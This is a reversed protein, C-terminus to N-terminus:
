LAGFVPGGNAAGGGGGARSSSVGVGADADLAPAVSASSSSSPGPLNSSSSSAVANSSGGAEKVVNSKNRGVSVPGGIFSLTVHRMQGTKPDQFVLKAM